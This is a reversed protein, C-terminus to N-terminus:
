PLLMQRWLLSASLRRHFLLTEWAPGGGKTERINGANPLCEPRIAYIRSEKINPAEIRHRKKRESSYKKLSVRMFNNFVRIKAYLNEM